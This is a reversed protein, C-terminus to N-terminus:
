LKVGEKNLEALMTTYIIKVIKLRIDFDKVNDWTYVIKDWLQQEQQYNNFVQWDTGCESCEHNWGDSDCLEAGCEPCYNSKKPM